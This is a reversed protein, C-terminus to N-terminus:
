DAGFLSKHTRTMSIRHYFGYVSNIVLKLVFNAIISLLRLERATKKRERAGYM